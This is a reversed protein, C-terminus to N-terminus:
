KQHWTYVIVSNQVSTHLNQSHKPSCRWTSLCIPGCLADICSAHVCSADLNAWPSFKWGSRVIDEAEQRM